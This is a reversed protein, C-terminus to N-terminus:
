GARDCLIWFFGVGPQSPTMKSFDVEESRGEPSGKEGGPSGHIDERVCHM